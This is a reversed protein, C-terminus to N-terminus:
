RVVEPTAPHLEQARSFCAAAAVLISEAVDIAAKRAADTGAGAVSALVQHSGAVVVEAEAIRHAGPISSGQTRVKRRRVTGRHHLGVWKRQPIRLPASLEAELAAATLLGARRGMGYWSRMGRRDGALRNGSSTAPPPEEMWVPVAELFREGRLITDADHVAALAQHVLDLEQRARHWWLAETSARVNGAHLLIPRTRGDWAVAAVGASAGPDIGVAAIM